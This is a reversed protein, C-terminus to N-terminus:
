ISKISATVFKEKECLATNLFNSTSFGSKSFDFYKSSVLCVHAVWICIGIGLTQGYPEVKKIPDTVSFVFFVLIFTFLMELAFAHGVKIGALENM